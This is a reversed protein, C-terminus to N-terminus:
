DGSLCVYAPAQATHKATELKAEALLVEHIETTATQTARLVVIKGHHLTLLCSSVILGVALILAAKTTIKITM